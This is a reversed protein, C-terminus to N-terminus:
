WSIKEASVRCVLLSDSSINLIILPFFQCGLISLLVTMWIQHLIWFRWLYAFRIWCWWVLMVIFALPVEKPLFSFAVLLFFFNCFPFAWQYLCVYLLPLFYDVCLAVLSTLHVFITFNNTDVILHSVSVCFLSIYFAAVALDSWDHGVGHSGLSPLGGLSEQGQSEGPLFM